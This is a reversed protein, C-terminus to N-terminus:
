LKTLNIEIRYRKDLNNTKIKSLIIDGATNITLTREETIEAEESEKRDASRIIFNSNGEDTPEFYWVSSRTEGSALTLEVIFGFDGTHGNVPWGGSDKEDSSIRSTIQDTPIDTEALLIGEESYFGVTDKNIITPSDNEGTELNKDFELHFTERVPIVMRGEFETQEGTQRTYQGTCKGLATDRRLEHGTGSVSWAESTMKELHSSIVTYTKKKDLGSGDTIIGKGEDSDSEYESICGAAAIMLILLIAVTKAKM